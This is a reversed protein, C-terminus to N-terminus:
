LSFGFPVASSLTCVNPLELESVHASLCFCSAFRLSVGPDPCLEGGTPPIRDLLALLAELGKRNESFHADPDHNAGGGWM